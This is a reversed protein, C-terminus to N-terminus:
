LKLLAEVASKLKADDMKMYPAVKDATEDTNHGNADMFHNWIADRVPLTSESWEFVDAMKEDLISNMEVAEAM